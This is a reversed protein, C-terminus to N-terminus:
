RAGWAMYSIDQTGDATLQVQFSGPSATGKLRNALSGVIEQCVVDPVGGFTGAFIKYRGTHTVGSVTGHEFKEYLKAPTVSEDKIDVTDLSADALKSSDVQTRRTIQGM